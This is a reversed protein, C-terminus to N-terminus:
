STSSPSDASQSSTSKSNEKTTPAKPAVTKLAGSDILRAEQKPDLDAEFQTGPEHGLVRSKAGVEYTRKAM